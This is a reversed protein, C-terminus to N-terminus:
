TLFFIRSTRKPPAAGRSVMCTIGDMQVVRESEEEDYDVDEEDYDDISTARWNVIWIGEGASVCNQKM